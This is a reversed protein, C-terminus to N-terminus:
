RGPPLALRRRLDAAVAPELPARWFAADANAPRWLASDDTISLRGLPRDDAGRLEASPPLDADPVRAWRGASLRRLEDLAARQADTAAWGEALAALPDAAATKAEPPSSSRRVAVEARDASTAAAGAPAAAAPASPAGGPAADQRGLGLRAVAEAPAVSRAAATGSSSSEAVKAAAAARGDTDVQPIAQPAQPRAQVARLERDDSREPPPGDQWMVGIVTALMLGAFAAAPVPRTLAQLWGRVRQWAGGSPSPAPAAAARRAKLLIQASVAEPPHADRDPAHRLAARLMADPEPEGPPKARNM